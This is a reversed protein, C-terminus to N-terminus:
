WTKPRISWGYLALEAVMEERMVSEAEPHNKFYWDYLDQYSAIVWPPQEGKLDLKGESDRREVIFDHTEYM